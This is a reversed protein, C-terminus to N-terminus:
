TWGQLLHPLQNGAILGWEQMASCPGVSAAEFAHKHYVGEEFPFRMRCYYDSRERLLKGSQCDTQAKFATRM